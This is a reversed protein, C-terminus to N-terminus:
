QCLLAKSQLACGSTPWLYWVCVFLSPLLLCQRKLAEYLHVVLSGRPRCARAASAWVASASAARAVLIVYGRCADAAVARSSYMIELLHQPILGCQGENCCLHQM